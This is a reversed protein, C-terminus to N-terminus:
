LLQVQANEFEWPMPNNWLKLQTTSKYSDVLMKWPTIPFNVKLILRDHDTNNRVGHWSNTNLIVPNSYTITDIRNFNTYDTNDTIKKTPTEYFDISCNNTLPINVCCQCRLRYDAHPHLVDNPKINIFVIRFLHSIEEFKLNLKAHYFMEKLIAYLDHYYSNHMLMDVVHTEHRGIKYHSIKKFDELFQLIDKQYKTFDGDLEACHNELYYKFNM